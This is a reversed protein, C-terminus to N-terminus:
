IYVESSIDNSHSPKKAYLRTKTSISRTNYCYRTNSLFVKSNATTSPALQM